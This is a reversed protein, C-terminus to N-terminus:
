PMERTDINALEPVEEFAAGRSDVETTGRVWPSSDYSVPVCPCFRINTQQSEAAIM